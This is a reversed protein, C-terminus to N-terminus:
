RLSSTINPLSTQGSSKKVWELPCFTCVGESAERWDELSTEEPREM